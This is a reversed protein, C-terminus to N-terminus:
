ESTTELRPFMPQPEPLSSGPVLGGWVRNAEMGKKLEEDRDLGLAALMKRSTEPMMPDLLWAYHRIAELISYLIMGTKAEDTKVLQFPKTEEIHKNAQLLGSGKEAGANWIAILAEDLRFKLVSADYVREIEAIGAAGSWAADTAVTAAENANVSPVCGNFYKRSMAVVRQVLNGLTNALDSAYREELRATSFDGDDGFPIERLLYYRVPDIGYKKSIDIPDITNGLSKSMKQGNITFFGHVYVNKPLLRDEDQLKKLLPDTKAASLLMAPWLACHFKLIDKGVMHLDAPWWTETMADDTGFGVASIYNILADFWVYIRQSDDGPVPIGCSLSAAERSISIDSLHNTVYQRVENLRSEPQAIEPHTDYWKLLEDRYSAYKFFYNKESIKKLERNPHLPCKGDVLDTETKFEECGECYLADYSGLYIDGAAMSAKWFREVAKLHREETTRIFDDNSIGTEKWTTEWLGAMRDLYTMLDTEGAKAMADANKQSNEDLGTVFRVDEGRLRHARALADCAITTYASGIHPKDNVYYIPTTVYFKM